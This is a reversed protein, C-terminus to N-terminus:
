DIGIYRRELGLIARLSAAMGGISTGIIIGRRGPVDPVEVLWKYLAPFKAWIVEGVPAIGMMTIVVALVLVTSEVSKVRLARFTASAISFMLLSFVATALPSYIEYFLWKSPAAFKADFLTVVFMVVMSIAQVIPEALVGKRTKADHFAVAMMNIMGTGLLFASILVTWSQLSNSLTNLVSWKVFYALTVALGCVISCYVPIERKLNSVAM